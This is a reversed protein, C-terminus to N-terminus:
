QNTYYQHYSSNDGQNYHQEYHHDVGAGFTEDDPYM